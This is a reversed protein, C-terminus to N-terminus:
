PSRRSSIGASVQVVSQQDFCYFPRSLNLPISCYIRVGSAASMTSYGDQYSVMCKKRYQLMCLLNLMHEIYLDCALSCSLIGGIIILM